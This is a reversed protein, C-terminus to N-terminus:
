RSYVWFVCAAVFILILLVAAVADVMSDDNKRIDIKDNM